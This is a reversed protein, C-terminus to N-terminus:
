MRSGQTARSNRHCDKVADDVIRDVKFASLALGRLLLAGDSFRVATADDAVVKSGDATAAVAPSNNSSVSCAAAKRWTVTRRMGAGGAASGASEADGPKRDWNLRGIM